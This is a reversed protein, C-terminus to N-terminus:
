GRKKQYGNLKSNGRRKGKKKRQRVKDKLSVKAKARVAASHRTLQYPQAKATDKNTHSQGHKAKKRGFKERGERGAMVSALRGEKDLKRKKQFGTIDTPNVEYAPRGDDSDSDKDQDEDLAERKRKMKEFDESTLLQM